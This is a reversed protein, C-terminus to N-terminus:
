YKSLGVPRLNQEQQRLLLRPIELLIGLTVLLWKMMHHIVVTSHLIYIQVPYVYKFLLIAYRCGEHRHWFCGYVFIVAKYKKFVLDPSGPLKKVNVRYRFGRCFLVKRLKMELATAKQGVKSMIKSRTEKDVTDM